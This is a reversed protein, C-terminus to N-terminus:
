SRGDVCLHRTNIKTRPDLLTALAYFKNSEVGSYRTQLSVLMQRKMKTVGSDADSVEMARLISNVIPIVVAASAYSGSAEHTAEECIQLVKVVKEALAWHSTHLEVPVDLKVSAATIATRQDVLRELMYFKTNWRTPKDQIPRHKPCDLQEQIKQLAKCALNSHKYYGVLKRGTATLASVCPQALCGDKVVLQLTHALCPINPINSDHLGAVFNSGNDRVVVHLKEAIGWAQLCNTIMSAIREGTHSDHFPVAHLCPQQREINSNIFHGTLSLCSDQAMSSWLDTTISVHSHKKVLDTVKEKVKRYMEPILTDSITLQIATRNLRKFGVQHVTSFWM